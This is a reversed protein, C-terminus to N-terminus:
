QTGDTTAGDAQGIRQHPTVAAKLLAAAHEPQLTVCGGSWISVITGMNHHQALCLYKALSGRHSVSTQSVAYAPGHLAILRDPPCGGAIFHALLSALVETWDQPFGGMM